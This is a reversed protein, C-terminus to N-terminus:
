ASCASRLLRGTRNADKPSLRYLARMVDPPFTLAIRCRGRAGGKRSFGYEGDIPTERTWYSAM